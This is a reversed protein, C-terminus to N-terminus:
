EGQVRQAEVGGAHVAASCDFSIIIVGRAGARSGDLRPELLFTITTLGQM